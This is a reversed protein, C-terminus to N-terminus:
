LSNFLLLDCFRQFKNSALVGLSVHNGQSFGDLRSSDITAFPRLVGHHVIGSAPIIYLKFNCKRHKLCLSFCMANYTLIESHMHM